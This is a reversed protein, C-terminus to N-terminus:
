HRQAPDPCDVDYGHWVDGRGHGDPHTEFHVPEGVTAGHGRGYGDVFGGDVAHYGGGAYGGGAAAYAYASVGSSGGGGGMTYSHSDSHYDYTAVSVESYERRWYHSHGSWHATGYEHPHRYGRYHGHTVPPAYATGPRMGEPPAAPAACNCEVKATKPPGTNIDCGSVTMAALAAAAALIVRM